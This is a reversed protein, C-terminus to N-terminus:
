RIFFGTLSSIEFSSNSHFDFSCIWELKDGKGSSKVHVALLMEVAAEVAARDGAAPEKLLAADSEACHRESLKEALVPIGGRGGRCEVIRQRRLLRGKRGFGLADNEQEHGPRGTM